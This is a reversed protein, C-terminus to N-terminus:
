SAPAEAGGSVQGRAARRAKERRRRTRRKAAERESEDLKAERRAFEMGAAHGVEIAEAHELFWAREPRLRVDHVHRAKFGGYTDRDLFGHAALLWVAARTLTLLPKDGHGTMGEVPCITRTVPHGPDGWGKDIFVFCRQDPPLGYLFRVAAAFGVADPGDHEPNAGRRSRERNWLVRDPLGAPDGGSTVIFNTTQYM